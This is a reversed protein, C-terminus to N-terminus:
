GDLAGGRMKKFNAVAKGLDLDKAGAPATVPKAEAFEIELNVPQGSAAKTKDFQMIDVGVKVLKDGNFYLDVKTEAPLDAKDLEKKFDKTAAATGAVDAGITYLKEVATKLDAGKVTAVKHAADASDETITVKALLDQLVKQAKAQTAADPSAKPKPQGSLEYVDALDLHVWKNRLVDGAGPAFMDAMGALQTPDGTGAKELQQSLSAPLQELDAKLYLDDQNLVASLMDQGDFQVAVSGLSTPDGAAKASGVVVIKASTLLELVDEEDKTLKEGSDDGLQQLAAVDGSLGFTFKVAEAKELWAASQQVDIKEPKAPDSSEATSDGCGTLGLGALALTVGAAAYRVKV